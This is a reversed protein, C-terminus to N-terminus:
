RGRVGARIGSARKILKEAEAVHGQDNYRSTAGRSARLVPHTAVCMPTSTGRRDVDHWRGAGPGQTNRLLPWLQLM